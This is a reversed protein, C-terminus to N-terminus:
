SFSKTVFIALVLLCYSTRERSVKALEMANVDKKDEVLEEWAFELLSSDQDLTFEDSCLYSQCHSDDFM